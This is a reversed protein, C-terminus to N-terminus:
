CSFVRERKACCFSEVSEDVISQALTLAEQRAGINQDIRSEITECDFLTVGQVHSIEPSVDRPVALDIILRDKGEAIMARDIIIDDCATASIIIDAHCLHERLNELSFAEAKHARALELASEITRNVIILRGVELSRLGRAINATMLNVGAVLATKTSLSEHLSSITNLVAASYTVAGESIGSFKRVLKGTRLATQFLRHLGTSVSGKAIADLYARKVQGQIHREGIFASELGSTVRFLHRAIEHPCEGDGTYLEVRNCTTLLVHPDDGYERNKLLFDEREALCHRKDKSYLAIM